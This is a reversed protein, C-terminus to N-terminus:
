HVMVTQFITMDITALTYAYFGIVCGLAFLDLTLNARGDRYAAALIGLFTFITAVGIGIFLGVLGFIYFGIVMALIVSGAWVFTFFAHRDSQGEALMLNQYPISLTGLAGNLAMLALFSGAAAYRDDYLFDILPQAFFSLLFFIPLFVLLMALRVKALARGLDQPRKRRIESFSPFVVDGLLKGALRRPLYAFLEALAILGLVEIPVLLGQIVLRGRGGLYTLATALLIWRGFRIIERLADREVWLRHRFPPLFLHGLIVNLIAGFVAGIALAWVSGLLWAATVTVAAATVQSAIATLTMARLILKRSMTASSITAFGSVVASLSLVCILPFLLIEDYLISVPWAIMCAVVAILIGRLVQISWATQLFAEDEGRDSRVISAKTGVDSLLKLGAIFVQGLAMLGFVEPSLLRTLLLNSVLRLVNNSGFGIL